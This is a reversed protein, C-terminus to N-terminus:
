CPLAYNGLKAPTVQVPGNTPNAWGRYARCLELKKARLRVQMAGIAEASFGKHQLHMLVTCGRCAHKAVYDVIQVRSKGGNEWDGSDVQWLWLRMGATKYAADVTKNHAGYPPRGYDAKVETSLEARVRAPDTKGNKKLKTLNPHSKSHNIVYQGHDRTMQVIDAKYKKKFREVCDGTPALVIGINNRQVYRLVSSLTALDKPCDDYTLVVRDSLNPGKYINYTKPDILQVRGDLTPPLLMHFPPPTELAQLLPTTARASIEVPRYPKGPMAAAMALILMAILAGIARMTRSGV